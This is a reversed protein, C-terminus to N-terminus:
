EAGKTIPTIHIDTAAQTRTGEPADVLKLDYAPFLGFMMFKDVVIVEAGKVFGEVDFIEDVELIAHDGVELALGKLEEM